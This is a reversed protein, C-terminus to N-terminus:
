AELLVELLFNSRGNRLLCGSGIMSPLTLNWVKIDIRLGELRWLLLPTRQPLIWSVGANPIPVMAMGVGAELACCM